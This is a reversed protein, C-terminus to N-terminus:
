GDAMRGIRGHCLDGSRARRGIRLLQPWHLNGDWVLYQVVTEDVEAVRKAYVFRRVYECIFGSMIAVIDEKPREGVFCCVKRMLEMRKTLDASHDNFEKLVVAGRDRLRTLYPDMALYPKGARMLNLQTADEGANPPPLVSEPLPPLSSIESSTSM